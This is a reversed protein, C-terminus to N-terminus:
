TALFYQQRVVRVVSFGSLAVLMLTEQSEGDIANAFLGKCAPAVVDTETEALNRRADDGAHLATMFELRRVSASVARSVVKVGDLGHPSGSASVTAAAASLLAFFAFARFTM